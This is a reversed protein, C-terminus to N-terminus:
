LAFYRSNFRCATSFLHAVAVAAVAVILAVCQARRAADGHGVSAAVPERHGRAGVKDIRPGVAAGGIAAGYVKHRDVDLVRVLVHAARGRVHQADVAREGVARLGLDGHRADAHEEVHLHGVADRRGGDLRAQAAQDGGGAGAAGQRELDHPREGVAPVAALGGLEDAHDGCSQLLAAGGELRHPAGGDAVAGARMSELRLGVVPGRVVALGRALQAQRQAVPRHQGVVVVRRPGGRAGRQAGVHEADAGGAVARQGVRERVLGRAVGGRGGAGGVRPERAVAREDERPVDLRVAPPAGAFHGRGLVGLVLREHDAVSRVPLVARLRQAAHAEDVHRRRGVGAPGGDHAPRGQVHELREREAEARERGVDHDPEVVGPVVPGEDDALRRRGAEEAPHHVGHRGRRAAADVVVRRAAPVVALLLLDLDAGVLREEAAVQAHGAADRDVHAGAELLQVRLALRGGGAGELEVQGGAAEGALGVHGDAAHPAGVLRRARARMRGSRSRRGFCGCGFHAEDRVVTHDVGLAALRQHHAAGHEAVVALHASECEDREGVGVVVGAAHLHAVQQAGVRPAAVHQHRHDRALAALVGGALVGAGVHERRFLADHGIGPAECRDVAGGGRAVGGAEGGREGGERGVPRDGAEVERRQVRTEDHRVVQRRVAVDRGLGLGVGPARAAGVEVRDLEGVAARSDAAPERAVAVDSGFDPQVGAHEDVQERLAGLDLRHEGDVAGGALLDADHAGAGRGVAAAGGLGPPARPGIGRGLEGRRGRGARGVGVGAAAALLRRCGNGLEIPDGGTPM